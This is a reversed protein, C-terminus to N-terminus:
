FVTSNHFSFYFKIFFAQEEISFFEKEKTSIKMIKTGERLAPFASKTQHLIEPKGCNGCVHRPIKCLGFSSSEAKVSYAIKLAEYLGSVIHPKLNNKAARRLRESDMSRRWADRYPSWAYWVSHKACSLDGGNVFGANFAVDADGAYQEGGDLFVSRMKGIYPLFMTPMSHFKPLTRLDNQTYVLDFANKAPSVLGKLFMAAM